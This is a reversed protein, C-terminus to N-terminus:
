QVSHDNKITTAQDALLFYATIGAAIAISTAGVWYIASNGHSSSSVTDKQDPKEIPKNDLPGTQSNGNVHSEARALKGRTEELEDQINKFIMYIMDSAYMDLIRATPEFRLLQTMYYKGKERTEYKAAYMVGLHKYIFVSDNHSYARKEKLGAELIDIAEDFDGNLYLKHITATDLLLAATVPKKHLDLTKVPGKKPASFATVAVTLTVAIWLFRYSPFLTFACV